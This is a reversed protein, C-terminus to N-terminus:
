HRDDHQSWWSSRFHQNQDFTNFNRFNKAANQDRRWVIQNMSFTSLSVDREAKQSRLAQHEWQSSASFDFNSKELQKFCRRNRSTRKEHSWHDHKDERRNSYNNQEESAKHREQATNLWWMWIRRLSKWWQCNEKRVRLILSSSRCLFIIKTLDRHMYNVKRLVRQLDFIESQVHIKIILSKLCDFIKLVRTKFMTKQSRELNRRLQRVHDLFHTCHKNSFLIFTITVDFTLWIRSSM